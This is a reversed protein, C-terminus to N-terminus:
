AGLSFLQSYISSRVCCSLRSCRGPLSITWPMWSRAPSWPLSNNNQLPPAEKPERELQWRLNQVKAVICPIRTACPQAKLYHTKLKKPHASLPKPNLCTPLRTRNRPKSTQHHKNPKRPRPSALHRLIESQLAQQEMDHACVLELGMIGRVCPGPVFVVNLCACPLQM